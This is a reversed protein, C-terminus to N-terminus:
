EKRKEDSVVRPAYKELDQGHESELKQEEQKEGYDDRHNCGQFFSPAFAAFKVLVAGALVEGIVVSWLFPKARAQQVLGFPPPTGPYKTGASRKKVASTAYKRTKTYRQVASLSIFSYM